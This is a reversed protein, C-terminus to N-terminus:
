EGGKKPCLDLIFRVAMAAVQIAETRQVIPPKNTKIDDWLEDLEEQIM